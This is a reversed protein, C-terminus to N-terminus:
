REAVLAALVEAVDGVSSAESRDGVDVEGGVSREVQELAGLLLAPRAGHVVDVPVLPNPRNFPVEM